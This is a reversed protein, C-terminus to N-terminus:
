PPGPQSHFREELKRLTEDSLSAREIGLMKEYERIKIKLNIITTERDLFFRQFREMEALRQQLRHRTQILESIDTLTVLCAESRGLEDTVSRGTILVPMQDMGSVLGARRLRGEWPASETVNGARFSLLWQKFRIQSPSDFLLSADRGFHVATPEGTMRGLCDNAFIIAGGTDVLIVGETMISLLTQYLRESRKLLISPKQENGHTTELVSTILPLLERSMRAKHLFHAAGRELSSVALAEDDRGTLIIVPLDAHLRKIEDLFLLCNTDPLGHDLLVLDFKTTALQKRAEEGTAAWTVPFRARPLIDRALILDDENDEIYLIWHRNM